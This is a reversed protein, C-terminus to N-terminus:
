DGQPLRKFMTVQNGKRSHIVSDMCCRMLLLGRGHPRELNAPDLPNAVAGVDFGPGEDRIVFQVGEHTLHAEFHVRRDCYPPQKQRVELLEYYRSTSDNRWESSIELNGHIAANTLAEELAIASEWQYRESV